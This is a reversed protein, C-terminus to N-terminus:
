GDPGPAKGPHMMFQATRVEEESALATLRNNQAATVLQPVEELFSNFESPSTSHFLENFYKVTM